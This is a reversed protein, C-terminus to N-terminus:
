TRDRKRVLARLACALVGLVLLWRSAGLTPVPLSEVSNAADRFWNILNGGDVSHYSAADGPAVHAASAENDRADVFAIAQSAGQALALIGRQGPSSSVVFLPEASSGQLTLSHAVTQTTGAPFVAHKGSGSLISLAYFVNQGYLHSDQAGCGDDLVVSGNGAAFNGNNNFDGGAEITTSGASFSGGTISFHGIHGLAASTASATGAVTLNGCGADFHADALALTSGSGIEIDAYASMSALLLPICRAISHAFTPCEIAHGSRVRGALHAGSMCGPENAHRAHMTRERLMAHQTTQLPLETHMGTGDDFM